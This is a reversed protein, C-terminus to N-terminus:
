EPCVLRARNHGLKTGILFTQSTTTSQLLRFLNDDHICYSQDTHSGDIIYMTYVYM